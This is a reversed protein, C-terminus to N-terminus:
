TRQYLVTSAKDEILNVYDNLTPVTNKKMETDGLLLACHQKFALCGIQKDSSFTLCRLEDSIDGRRKRANHVPACVWESVYERFSRSILLCHMTLVALVAILSAPDRCGFLDPDLSSVRTSGSSCQPSVTWVRVHKPRRTPPPPPPYFLMAWFFIEPFTVLLIVLTWWPSSSYSSWGLGLLCLVSAAFALDSGNLHFCSFMLLFTNSSKIGGWIEM